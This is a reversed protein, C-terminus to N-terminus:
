DHQNWNRILISLRYVFYHITLPNAETGSAETQRRMCIHIYRKNFNQNKGSARAFIIYYNKDKLQTSNSISAANDIKSSSNRSCSNNIGRPQLSSYEIARTIFLTANILLFIVLFSLYVYNNKIYPLTLQYPRVPMLKEFFSASKCKPKPPVLWRDISCCILM